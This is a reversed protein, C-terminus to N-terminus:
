PSACRPRPTHARTPVAAGLRVRAGRQARGVGRAREPLIACLARGARGGRGFAAAQRVCSGREAAGPVLAAEVQGLDARTPATADHTCKGRERRSYTSLYKYGIGQKGGACGRAGACVHHYGRRSSPQETRKEKNSDRRISDIAKRNQM